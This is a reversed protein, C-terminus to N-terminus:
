LIDIIEILCSGCDGDGGNGAVAGGSGGGGGCGTGSSTIGGIGGNSNSSGGYYGGGSGGPGGNQIFVGDTGNSFGAGGTVLQGGNGGLATALIKNTIPHRLLTPSGNNGPTAASGFLVGATGGLGGIGSQIILGAGIPYIIVASQVYGQGGGGGSGVPINLPAPNGGSGGGGGGILEIRMKVNGSAPLVPFLTSDITITEGSLNTWYRGLIGGSGWYPPAGAGASTLVQGATGATGSSVDRLPVAIKMTATPSTSEVTLTGTANEMKIAAVSEASIGQFRVSPDNSIDTSGIQFTGDSTLTTIAHRTTLNNVRTVVSSDDYTIINISQSTPGLNIAHMNNKARLEVNVDSKMRMTTDITHYEVSSLIGGATMNVAIGGSNSTNLNITANPATSDGVNVGSNVNVVNANNLNYGGMDVNEKIDLNVIPNASNDTVTINTGGTVSTVGQVPVGNLLLDSGDYALTGGTALTITDVSPDRTWAAHGRTDGMALVGGASPFTGDPHQYVIQRTKLSHLDVTQQHAM